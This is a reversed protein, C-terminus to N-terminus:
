FSLLTKELVLILRWDESAEKEWCGMKLLLESIKEQKYSWNKKEKRKACERTNTPQEKQESFHTQKQKDNPHKQKMSM